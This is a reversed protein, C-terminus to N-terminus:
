HLYRAAQRGLYGHYYYGVFGIIGVGFGGTHGVGHEVAEAEAGVADPSHRRVHFGHGGQGVGMPSNKSMRVMGLPNCIPLFRTGMPTMAAM